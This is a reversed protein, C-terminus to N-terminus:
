WKNYKAAPLLKSLTPLRFFNHAFNHALHLFVVLYFAFDQAHEQSQFIMVMHLSSIVFCLTALLVHVIFSSCLLKFFYIKLPNTTLSYLLKCLLWSFFLPSTFVTIGNKGEEGIRKLLGLRFLSSLPHLECFDPFLVPCLFISILDICAFTLYM